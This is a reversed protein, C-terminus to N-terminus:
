SRLKQTLIGADPLAVGISSIRRDQTLRIEKSVGFRKELKGWINLKGFPSTPGPATADAPHDADPPDPDPGKLKATHSASGDWSIQDDSRWTSLTIPNNCGKQSITPYGSFFCGTSM